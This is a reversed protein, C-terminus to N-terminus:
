HTYLHIESNPRHGPNLINIGPQPRTKCPIKGQRIVRRKLLHAGDLRCLGTSLIHPTRLLVAQEARLDGGRRDVHDPTFLSKMNCFSFSDLWDVSSSLSDSLWAMPSSMNIRVSTSFLIAWNDTLPLGLILRRVNYAIYRNGVRKRLSASPNLPYLPRWQHDRTWFVAQARPKGRNVWCWIPVRSEEPCPFTFGTFFLPVGV